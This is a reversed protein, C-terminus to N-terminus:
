LCDITSHNKNNYFANNETYVGQCYIPYGYSSETFPANIFEELDQFTNSIKATQLQDTITFLEIISEKLIDMENDLTNQLAFKSLILQEVKEYSYNSEIVFYAVKGYSLSRIYVPKEQMDVKEKFFNNVPFDMYATFSESRIQGILRSRIAKKSSIHEVENSIIEGLKTNNSFAKQIDQNSFIETLRIEYPSHKNKIYEKYQKSKLSEALLTKYGVSGHEQNVTGTFPVHFNFIIDIPNKANTIEPSFSTGFDKKNYAAGIYLPPPTVVFRNEVSIFKDGIFLQDDTGPTFTYDWKFPINDFRGKINSENDINEEKQCSLCIFFFLFSSLISKKM